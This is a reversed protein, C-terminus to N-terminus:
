DVVVMLQEVFRAAARQAIAAAFKSQARVL